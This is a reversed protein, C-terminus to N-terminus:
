PGCARRRDRGPPSRRRGRRCTSRSRPSRRRRRAARPSERDLVGGLREARGVASRGRARLRWERRQREVAVLDDRRATASRQDPGVVREDGVRALERRLGALGHRVVLVGLDAEVVAEAVEQGRDPARLERHQGLANRGPLPDVGAVALQEAVSGADAEHGGRGVARRVAPERADRDIGADNPASRSCILSASSASSM